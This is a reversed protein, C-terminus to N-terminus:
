VVSSSFCDECGSELYAPHVDADDLEELTSAERRESVSCGEFPISSTEISPPEGDDVGSVTVNSVAMTAYIKDHGLLLRTFRRLTQEDNTVGDQQPLAFTLFPKQRLSSWNHGNHHVELPLYPQSCDTLIGYGHLRVLGDVLPMTEEMFTAWRHRNLNIERKLFAKSLRFVTALDPASRWQKMAEEKSKCEDCSCGPVQFDNPDHPPPAQTEAVVDTWASPLSTESQSRINKLIKEIHADRRERELDRSELVDTPKSSVMTRWRTIKDAHLSISVIINYCSRPPQSEAMLKRIDVVTILIPMHSASDPM